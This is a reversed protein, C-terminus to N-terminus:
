HHKLALQIPSRYYHTITTSLFLKENVAATYFTLVLWKEHAPLSVFQQVAVYIDIPLQYYDKSLSM